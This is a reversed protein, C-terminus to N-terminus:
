AAAPRRFGCPCRGTTPSFRHAGYKTCPPFQRPRGGLRGNSRVARTKARSRGRGGKLGGLRGFEAFVARMKPTLQQRIKTKRM